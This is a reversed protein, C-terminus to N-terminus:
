AGEGPTAQKSTEQGYIGEGTELDFLHVASTDVAVDIVDGNRIRSRPGFRGVMVAKGTDDGGAQVTSEQGVERALERVDETL